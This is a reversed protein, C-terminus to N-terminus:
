KLLGNVVDFSSVCIEDGSVPNTDLYILSFNNIDATVNVVSWTVLRVVLQILM